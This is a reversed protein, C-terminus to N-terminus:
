LRAAIYSTMYVTLYLATAFVFFTGVLYPGDRHLCHSVFGRLCYHPIFQLYELLVLFGFLLVAFTAQFYSERLSLLISAIIMHFTFYFVLPNEIGGSFHLLATLLLLDASIQFNIIKKVERCTLKNEGKNLRNLLLLMAVNYGALLIAISYLATVQLELALVRDCIYTGFVVCVIAIWRLTILWHARKYLRNNEPVPKMNPSGQCFGDVPLWESDGATSKFGLGTREKVATLILIPIDKFQPDKKLERSMEFGDHWTSMMVDLIFLDPKELKAKEMGENRDSATIVNYHKSELIIQISKTHDVDDDVILIKPNEM